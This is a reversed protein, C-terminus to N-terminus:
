TSNNGVERSGSPCCYFGMVQKISEASIGKHDEHLENVLSDTLALIVPFCAHYRKEEYNILEKLALDMRPLFAKIPSSRKLQFRVTEVDYYRLLVEQADQFNGSEAKLVTEKAVEFSM